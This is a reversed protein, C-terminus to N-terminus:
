HEIVQQSVHVDESIVHGPRLCPLGRSIAEHQHCFGGGAAKDTGLASGISSELDAGWTAVNTVNCAGNDSCSMTEQSSLLSTCDIWTADAPVITGQGASM